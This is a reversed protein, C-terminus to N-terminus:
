PAEMSDNYAGRLAASNCLARHALAKHAAAVNADDGKWIELAPHQIARAFSFM